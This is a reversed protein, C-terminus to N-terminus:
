LEAIILPMAGIILSAMYVVFTLSGGHRWSICLLDFGACLWEFNRVMDYSTPHFRGDLVVPNGYIIVLIVLAM